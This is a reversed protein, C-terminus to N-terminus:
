LYTPLLSIFKNEFFLKFILAKFNLAKAFYLKLIQKKRIVAVLTDFDVGNLGLSWQSVWIVKSWGLHGNVMIWWRLSENIMGLWKQGELNGITSMHKLGKVGNKGM